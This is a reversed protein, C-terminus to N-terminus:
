ILTFDSASSFIWAVDIDCLPRQEKIHSMDSQFHFSLCGEINAQFKNYQLSMSYVHIIFYVSM